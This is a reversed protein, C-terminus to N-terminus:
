PGTALSVVHMFHISNKKCFRAVRSYYIPVSTSPRPRRKLIRNEPISRRTTQGVTRPTEATGEDELDFLGFISTM